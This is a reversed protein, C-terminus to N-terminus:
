QPVEEDRRLHLAAMGVVCFAVFTCFQAHAMTSEALGHVFLVTLYSASFAAEAPYRGLRTRGVGLWRVLAVGLSFLFLSAGVLGLNLAIEIYVSHAESITYGTIRSITSTKAATWFSDHGFGTVLRVPEAQLQSLGFAWIDTRGTLTRVNSESRGMLLAEWVPGLLRAEYLFFLAAVMAAGASVLIVAHSRRLRLLAFVLMSALAAGLSTRSRTLLLFIFAVAVVGLCAIVQARRRRTTAFYLMALILMVMTIGAHNPHMTGAWRVALLQSVSTGARAENVIGAALSAVGYFTVALIVDRLRFHKVVAAISLWLSTFVVLRKLTLGRDHSWLLSLYAWVILVMLPYVLLWDPRFRREARAPRLVGAAGFAGLLVFGIQRSAQGHEVRAVWGAIDSEADGHWLFPANVDQTALFFVGFLFAALLWAGPRAFLREPAHASIPLSASVASPSSALTM